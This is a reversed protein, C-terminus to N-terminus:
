RRGARRWCPLTWADLVRRCISKVEDVPWPPELNRGYAAWEALAPLPDCSLGTVGRLWTAATQSPQRARGAWRARRELLWVARRVCQQWTRGPFCCFWRVALADLFERRWWWLAALTALGLSAEIWHEWTWVLVASLALGLRELLSLGPRLVEYGPTPELELWDGGPLRVEAWFHLDEEVVPTHLTLPDYHDPSVYFGSVLRTQYGLVRLLVAAASAFQYDPGARERLLFHTLTDRCDEPVRVTGDLRYDRRLHGIVAAIRPWGPAEEDAWRHALASLEPNFNPPLTHYRLNETRVPSPFAVAPLLRPDVARSETEVVIGSPTKRQAMRLIREQGWGFFDARNVRGIRFRVLHPPTPVLTGPSRAIKIQHAEVVSFIAPPPPEALQMWCSDPEKELRCNRANVPAEAWALGDFADFATVRVHLPTRGQVEFIARASRDSPDRPQRPSKRATPFERNPRLSNAPPKRSENVKTQPDLAISLEREKPKFPEGYQENFMDYLSPLPSDLFIDTLLMGTSHPNDGQTEDDGDNVGGRAFPDQNGTGGSTPLWEGLVRATRQPGVAILGLVSSVLAVVGFGVRWPLREQGPQVELAVSHDSAVFFRRLGTWHVLMLWVSGTASYLALLILVAPHGSTSVAFLMLFLSVVCALRVCLLWASCAALGLGLNRLGFLLQLELTYGENLWSRRIPEFLLPVVTLGLLILFM